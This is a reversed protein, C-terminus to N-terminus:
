RSAEDDIADSDLGKSEFASPFSKCAKSVGFGVGGRVTQRENMWKMRKLRDFYAEAGTTMLLLRYVGTSLMSLSRRYLFLLLLLLLLLFLLRLLFLLSLLPLSFLLPMRRWRASTLATPSTTGCCRSSPTRSPTSISTSSATQM